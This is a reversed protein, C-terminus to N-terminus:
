CLSVNRCTTSRVSLVRHPGFAEFRAVEDVKWLGPSAPSADSAANKKFYQVTLIVVEERDTAYAMMAKGPGIMRAWSFSRIKDVPLLYGGKKGKDPIPLTSGVGWLLRWSDFSRSTAGLDVGSRTKQREGYVMVVGSTLMLALVPRRNCGLGNPSWEM